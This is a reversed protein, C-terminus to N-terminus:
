EAVKGRLNVGGADVTPWVFERLISGEMGGGDAAVFGAVAGGGFLLAGRGQILLQFEFSDAFFENLFVNGEAM